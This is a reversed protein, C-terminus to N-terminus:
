SEHAVAQQWAQRVARKTLTEIVRRKYAASVGLHALPRAEKSALGAATEVLGEDLVRGRLAAEADLARLPGTSVSGLVIRADHCLGDQPGVTIVVGASTVAFDIAERLSHKLFVGGSHPPPPPVLIQTLILGPRLMNVRDGKGTYFDELPTQTDGDVDAVTVRAGLAILAPVTDAVFLAQCHDSGKSVHCLAGGDKHCAPLPRKWLLSQNYYFCRSDLCINGGLTAMEPIRPKGVSAAAKALMGFRDRVLPSTAVARLTTAAGIRLGGEEIAAVGSLHPLSRVSVLAKAAITGQKLTVLLETGGAIVRTDPQSLLTCAEELTKPEFYEFRPLRM